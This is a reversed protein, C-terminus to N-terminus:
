IHCLSAEERTAGCLDMEYYPCNKHCVSEDAVIGTLRPPQPPTNYLMQGKNICEMLDAPTPFFKNTKLHVRAAKYVQEAEMDAFVLMYARAMGKADIKANPYAARCTNLLEIVQDQTM